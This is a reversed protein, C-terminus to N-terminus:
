TVSYKKLTSRLSRSCEPAQHTYKEKEEGLTTESSFFSLTLKPLRSYSLFLLAEIFEERVEKERSIKEEPAM